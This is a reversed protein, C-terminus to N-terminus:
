AKHNRKLAQELEQSMFDGDDKYYELADEPSRFFVYLVYGEEEAWERQEELIIALEKDNKIQYTDLMCCPSYWMNVQVDEIPVLM